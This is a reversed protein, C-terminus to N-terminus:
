ISVDEEAVVLVFEDEQVPETSQASQTVSPIVASSVTPVVAPTVAEVASAPQESIAGLRCFVASKSDISPIVSATGGSPGTTSVRATAAEIHARGVFARVPREVVQRDKRDSREVSLLSVRRKGSSSQKSDLLHRLDQVRNGLVGQSSSSPSPDVFEIQRVNRVSSQPVNLQQTTSPQEAEAQRYPAQRKKRRKEKEKARLKLVQEETLPKEKQKKFKPM